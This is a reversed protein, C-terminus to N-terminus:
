RWGNGPESFAIFRDSALDQAARKVEADTSGSYLKAMEAAHRRLPVGSTHRFNAATPADQGLVARSNAEDLNWGALLPVASEKGAAFIALSMKRCSIATSM